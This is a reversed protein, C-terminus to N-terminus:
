NWKHSVACLAERLRPKERPDRVLGSGTKGSCSLSEEATGSGPPLPGEQHACTTAGAKVETPCKCSTPTPSLGLSNGMKCPQPCCHLLGLPNQNYIKNISLIVPHKAKWALYPTHPGRSSGWRPVGNCRRPPAPPFNSTPFSRCISLKLFQCGGGQGAGAFPSKQKM